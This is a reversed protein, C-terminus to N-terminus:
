TLQNPPPQRAGNVALLVFTVVVSSIVSATLAAGVTGWFSLPSGQSKNGNSSGNGNM